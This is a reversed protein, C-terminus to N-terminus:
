QDLLREERLTMAQIHVRLEDMTIKGGQLTRLIDDNGKWAHQRQMNIAQELFLLKRNALEEFLAIDDQQDFNDKTLSKLRQIASPLNAVAKNYPELFKEDNTLLFGRQSTEADKLESLLLNIQSLVTYTHDVWRSSLLFQNTRTYTIFSIFILLLFALVIGASILMDKQTRLALM